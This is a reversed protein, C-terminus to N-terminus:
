NGFTVCYVTIVDRIVDHRTEIKPGIAATPIVMGIRPPPSPRTNAYKKKM